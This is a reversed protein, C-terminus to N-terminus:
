KCSPGALRNLKELIELFVVGLREPLGVDLGVLDAYLPRRFLEKRLALRILGETLYTVAGDPAVDELYVIVEGDQRSSALVLHAVPDGAVVVPAAVPASTYTALRRDQAARDPYGTKSLDVPSRYRALAGSSAAFDVAYADAGDAAAIAECHPTLGKMLLDLILANDDVVLVKVDKLPTM